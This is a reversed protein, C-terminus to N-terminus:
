SDSEPLALRSIGAVSNHTSSVMECKVQAEDDVVAALLVLAWLPLLFDFTNAEAMGRVVEYLLISFYIMRVSSHRLERIRRWLSGYAGVLMLVGCVGYSYFQQLVENEAHRAEFLENGFPPAVKWMSDFGNGFWPKSLGAELSYAWIATRGTLTEAQNGANSYVSYYAEFLGWFALTLLVAGGTLLMKNRRNMARDRVVLFAQSVLFAALTTKSLSRLLTVMLFLAVLSWKGASRRMLLQAFLISLACLDGIQNTNFFEPDGLRLDSQAPM